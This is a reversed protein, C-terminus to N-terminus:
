NKEDIVRRKVWFESIETNFRFLHDRENGRSESKM